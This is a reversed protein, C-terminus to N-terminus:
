KENKLIKVNKYEFVKEFGFNELELAYSPITIENDVVVFKVNFNEVVKQFHQLDGAFPLVYTKTFYHLVPYNEGIIFDGEKVFNKLFNAAKVISDDEQINLYKWSVNLEFAFVVLVVLLFLKKDKIANKLGIASALFFIPFYPVLYRFEKRALISFAIFIILFTSLLLKNEKKWNL